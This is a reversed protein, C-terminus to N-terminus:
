WRTSIRTRNGSSSRGEAEIKSQPLISIRFLQPLQNKQREIQLCNEEVQKLQEEENPRAIAHDPASGQGGGSGAREASQQHIDGEWGGNEGRQDAWVVGGEDPVAHEGSHQARNQNQAVAQKTDRSQAKKTDRLPRQQVKQLLPNM